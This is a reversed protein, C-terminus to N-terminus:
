KINSIWALASEHLHNDQTKKSQNGKFPGQPWSHHLPQRGTPWVADESLLFSLVLWHTCSRSSVWLLPTSAAVCKVGLANQLFHEERLPTSHITTKRHIPKSQGCPMILMHHFICVPISPSSNHQQVIYHGCNWHSVDFTYSVKQIKYRSQRLEYYVYSKMCKKVDLM